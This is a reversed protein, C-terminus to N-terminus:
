LNIYNSRRSAFYYNKMLISVLIIYIEDTFFIM